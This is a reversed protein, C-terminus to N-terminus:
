INKSDKLHPLMVHWKSEHVSLVAHFLKLNPKEQLLFCSEQREMESLKEQIHRKM